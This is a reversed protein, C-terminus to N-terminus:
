FVFMLAVYAFYSRPCLVYNFYITMFFTILCSHKRNNESNVSTHLSVLLFVTARASTVRLLMKTVYPANYTKYQITNYQITFWAFDRERCILRQCSGSRLRQLVESRDTWRLDHALYLPAMDVFVLEAWMQISVVRLYVPGAM